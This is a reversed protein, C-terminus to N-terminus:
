LQAAAMSIEQERTGTMATLIIWIFTFVDSSLLLPFLIFM